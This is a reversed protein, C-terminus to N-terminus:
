WIECLHRLSGSLWWCMVDMALKNHSLQSPVENTNSTPKWRPLRGQLMYTRYTPLLSSRHSGLYTCTFAHLHACFRDVGDRLTPQHSNTQEAGLFPAYEQGCFGPWKFGLCFDKVWFVFGKVVTIDDGGDCWLGCSWRQLSCPHQVIPFELDQLSIFRRGQFDQKVRGVQNM